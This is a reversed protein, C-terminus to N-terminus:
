GGGRRRAGRKEYDRGISTKEAVLFDAVDNGLERARGLDLGAEREDRALAGVLIQSVHPAREYSLRLRRM